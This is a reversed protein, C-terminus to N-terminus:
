LKPMCSNVIYTRWSVVMMLGEEGRWSGNFPYRCCSFRHQSKFGLGDLYAPLLGPVERKGLTPMGQRLYINSLSAGSIINRVKSFNVQILFYISGPKPVPAGIAALIGFMAGLKKTNGVRRCMLDFSRWSCAKPLIPQTPFRTLNSTPMANPQCM